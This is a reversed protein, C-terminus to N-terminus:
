YYLKYEHISVKRVLGWHRKSPEYNKLMIWRKGDCKM